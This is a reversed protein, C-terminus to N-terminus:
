FYVKKVYIHELFTEASIDRDIWKKYYYRDVSYLTGYYKSHSVGVCLTQAYYKSNYAIDFGMLMAKVTTESFQGQSYYNYNTFIYDNLLVPSTFDYKSIDDNYTSGTYQAYIFNSTNFAFFLFIVALATLFGTTIGKTNGNTNKM